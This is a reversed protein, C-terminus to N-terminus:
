ENFLMEAVDVAGNTIGFDNALDAQWQLEEIVFEGGFRPLHMRNLVDEDIETYTGTIRRVEDPNEDAYTRSEDLAAVFAEVTEPNDAQYQETTFYGAVLFNPDTEVWHWLVVEAGEDEAFTVFPEVVVGADVQGNAVAAPMEPWPIEVWEILDPDGGDEEVAHSITMVFNNALTNTAITLGELDAAREINAEPLAVVGAADDGQEGTTFVGPSVSLLPLDQSVANVQSTFNSFGFENEGSIVAPILAAGGQGTVLEVDLGQEEFFGQEVGLYIPAVDVIPLVGVTIETLAESAGDGGESGGEGEGGGEDADDTTADDDGGGCAGLLLAAATAVPLIRM